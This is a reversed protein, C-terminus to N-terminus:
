THHIRVNEENKELKINKEFNKRNGSEFWTMTSYMRLTGGINYSAEGPHLSRRWLRYEM